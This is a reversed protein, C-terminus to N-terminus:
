DGVVVFMELGIGEVEFHKVGGVRQGPDAFVVSRPRRGCPPVGREFAQRPEVQALVLDEPQELVSALDQRFGVGEASRLVCVLVDAGYIGRSISRVLRVTSGSVPPM